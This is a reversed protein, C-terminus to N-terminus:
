EAVERASQIFWRTATQRSITVPCRPDTLFEMAREEDRENRVVIAAFETETQRRIWAVSEVWLGFRDAILKRMQKAVAENIM